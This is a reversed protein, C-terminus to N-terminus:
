YHPRRPRCTAGAPDHQQLQLSAAIRETVVGGSIIPSRDSRSNAQGMAWSRLSPTLNFRIDRSANAALYGTGFETEGDRILVGSKHGGGCRSPDGGTQDAPLPQTRQYMRSSLDGLHSRPWRLLSIAIGQPNVSSYPCPPDDYQCPQEHVWSWSDPRDKIKGREVPRRHTVCELGVHCLIRATTSGIMVGEPQRGDVAVPPRM